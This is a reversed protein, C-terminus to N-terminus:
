CVSRIFSEPNLGMAVLKSTLKNKSINLIEDRLEERTVPRETVIGTNGAEVYDIIMNTWKEINPTNLGIGSNVENVYFKRDTGLIVDVGGFILGMSEVAKIAMTQAINNCTSIEPNVRRFQCNDNKWIKDGINNPVKEYIGTVKGNFVQVRYERKKKLAKTAYKDGARLSTAYRVSNDAGRVYAGGDEDVISSFESPSAVVPTRIEEVGELISMMKRKESANRVSEETNFEISPTFPVNCVSNGWRILVDCPKVTKDEFVRRVSTFKGSNKLSEFLNRGTVCTRKTYAIVLRM